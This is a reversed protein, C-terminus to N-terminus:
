LPWIESRLPPPESSDADLVLSWFARSRRSLGFGGEQRFWSLWHPEPIVQAMRRLDDSDGEELIRSMVFTRHQELNARDYGDFLRRTDGQLVDGSIANM